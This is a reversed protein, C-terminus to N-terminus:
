GRIKLLRELWAWDRETDLDVAEWASLQVPACAKGLLRRNAALAEPRCWYFQGADHFAPALDQTRRGLATPDVPVVRGANVRLAREIPHGYAQVSLCSDLQADGALLEYGARLHEARVLAATPYLCCILDFCEGRESYYALVEDIVATTTAHDHSTEASRIFPVKAGAEVAIRAIETDDTSVMIESFVGSLQAQELPWTLLPRGALLRVNKRPIRKSGGRAPLICLSRM